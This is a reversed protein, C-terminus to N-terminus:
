KKEAGAFGHPHFRHWKWASAVISDIQVHRASWGFRRRVNDSDAYLSPPDGARRPGFQVPIAHGTARRASEIVELVSTGRGTGVNYAEARGPEAGEIALLHAEALDDVHVYDRVCSGDPTPYDTGFVSIHPRQGLAVQLVLPILHAEPSHDEGITGDEAAGSANFYRLAVSGLGWATASDKLMLEVVLKTAGYPNIPDKPLDEVLPLRDPEGYVACTSSFVMRKVRAKEMAELLNLTNAVNNRYYMLPKHVSEGVNLWAAFHMVADFKGGTLLEALLGADALDGKVFAASPHIAERHGYALNDFVTVSHGGAILRRVAHSGVYGAGGTVFIRM